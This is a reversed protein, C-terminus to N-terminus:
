ALQGLVKEVRDLTGESVAFHFRILSEGMGEEHYFSGGPVGTLGVERSLWEAFSRSDQKAREPADVDTVDAM